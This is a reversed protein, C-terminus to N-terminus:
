KVGQKPVFYIADESCLSKKKRSKRQLIKAQMDVMNNYYSIYQIFDSDIYNCYMVNNYKIFANGANIIEDINNTNVHAKQYLIQVQIGKSWAYDYLRNAEYILRQNAAEQKRKSYFTGNKFKWNYISERIGNVSLLSDSFINIYQFYPSYHIAMSLAARIGKIEEENITANVSSAAISDIVNYGNAAIISYSGIPKNKGVSMSGDSFINLTYPNCYQNFYINGKMYFTYENLM